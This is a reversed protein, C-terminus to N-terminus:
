SRTAGAPNGGEAPAGPAPTKSEEVPGPATSALSAPASDHAEKPVTSNTRGAVLNKQGMRNACLGLACMAACPLVALVLGSLGAAVLSDWGLVLGSGVGAVALVTLTTGQSVRGGLTLIPNCSQQSAKVQMAQSKEM